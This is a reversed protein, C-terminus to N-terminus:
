AHESVRQGPWDATAEAWRAELAKPSPLERASLPRRLPLGDLRRYDPSALAPSVRVTLTNPEIAVLGLDLLTHIDARLLLGNQVHHTKEGRYPLIHAAELVNVDVCGTVACAGGYADILQRRFKAQGRRERISKLVKSRADEDSAADFDPAPAAALRGEAPSAAPTPALGEASFGQLIFHQPTRKEVLALGEVRYVTPGEAVQRMVAVPIRDLMNAVLAANTFVAGRSEDEPAYEYRWSGDPRREPEHDPYPSGWNQRISLAYKSGEPKYIAKGKSALRTGDPLSGPWGTDTGTRQRYWQLAARHRGELGALLDDLREM